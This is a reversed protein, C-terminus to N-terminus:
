FGDAILRQLYDKAEIHGQAAAKEFWKKAQVKSFSLADNGEPIDKEFIM